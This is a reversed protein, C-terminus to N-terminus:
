GATATPGASGADPGLTARLSRIAERAVAVAGGYGLTGGAKVLDAAGPLRSQVTALTEEIRRVQPPLMPHRDRTALVAGVLQAAPEDVGARALFDALSLLVMWHLAENGIDEWQDMVQEFGELAHGVPGRRALLGVRSSRALNLFFRSDAAEAAAAAARYEEDAAAPDSESLTEGLVFRAWAITSPHGMEEARGVLDQMMARARETDGAYCAVQAECVESTLAGLDAGTSALLETVRHYLAAAEEDRGEFMALNALQMTPGAAEHGGAAVEVGRTALRRAEPFQGGTWAAGAAATLASPLRPHEVDWTAVETGWALLDRRGRQYAYNLIDAALDVGLEHDHQRAHEWAAHLDPLLSRIGDVAAVEETTGLRDRLAALRTATDRAHRSRLADADEHALLDTAYARLTELLWFRGHSAQVMSQEALRVLAPAVASAALEADHCVATAQDVTFSSPFVALRRFLTAEDPTLLGYSWDVVDRLTRHRAAATRRGGAVVDIGADVREALAKLGFLPAHAAGIEIALPLGDLRRCIAAVLDIEEDALEGTEIGPAREIFLRVAANDRGADRPLALPALRHVHEFGVALRERSTALVTVGPCRHLLEEVLPAVDSLVTEANDLCLMMEAGGWAGVLADIGDGGPAEVNAAEAVVDVLRRDGAASLDVWWVRRGRDALAHATELALRTKGVGGPGVLTVLRRSQLCEELLAADRERGLMPGPLWPLSRGSAASPASDSDTPPQAAPAAPAAPKAPTPAHEDRLIRQELDRLAPGPDLGTEEALADRHDRFAALADTTRGAAHLAAMLVEVPRERLPYAARLDQAAGVAEAVHGTELLLAAREETAAVKLEELRVAAPRAFGDALEAYAPGRWLGLAGDVVELARGPDDARLARAERCRAEFDEADISDAAVDLVYGPPRTRVWTEGNEGLRSRLRSVLQHLANASTDAVDDGWLAEVLRSAPVVRRPELLLAVLLARTRAGPLPVPAGDVTVELPGLVGFRIM